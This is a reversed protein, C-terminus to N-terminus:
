GADHREPLERVTPRELDADIGFLYLDELREVVGKITEPRLNIEDGRDFFRKRIQKAIQKEVDVMFDRFLISNVPNATSQRARQDLPDLVEGQDAPFEFRKEAVLGPYGDKIKKDSLLKLTILKVFEVFGPSQGIHDSQHIFQHCKAFVNNVEAISPKTFHLTAATPSPHGATFTDAHLTEVLQQYGTNNETFEEFELELFPETDKNRYLVTRRGNTLVFYKVPTAQSYSGNIAVCYGRAQEM